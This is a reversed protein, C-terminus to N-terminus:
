VHARGIQRELETNKVFFSNNLVNYSFWRLREVAVQADEAELTNTVINCNVMYNNMYFLNEHWLGATFNLDLNLRIDM